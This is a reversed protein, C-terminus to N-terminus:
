DERKGNSRGKRKRLHVVVNEADLDLYEAPLNEDESDQADEEIAAKIRRVHEKVEEKTLKRIM